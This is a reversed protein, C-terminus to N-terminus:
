RFVSAALPDTEEDDDDAAGSIQSYEDDDETQFLHMGPGGDKANGILSLLDGWGSSFAKVPGSSGSSTM